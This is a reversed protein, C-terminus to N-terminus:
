QKQDNLAYYYAKISKCYTERDPETQQQQQQM